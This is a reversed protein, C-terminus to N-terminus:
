WVGVSCVCTAFKNDVCIPACAWSYLHLGEVRKPRLQLGDSVSIAWHSHHTYNVLGQVRCSFWLRYVPFRVQSRDGHRHTKTPGTPLRPRPPRRAGRGGGERAGGPFEAFDGSGWLPAWRRSQSNQPLSFPPPAFHQLAMRGDAPLIIPSPDLELGLGMMKPRSHASPSMCGRGCICDVM